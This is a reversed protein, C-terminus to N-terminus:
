VISENEQKLRAAENRERCLERRAMVALLLGAVGIAHIFVVRSGAGILSATSPAALWILVYFGLLLTSLVILATSAVLKM